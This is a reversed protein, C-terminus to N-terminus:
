CDNDINWGTLIGDFVRSNAGTAADVADELISNRDGDALYDGPDRPLTDSAAIVTFYTGSPRGVAYIEIAAQLGKIAKAYLSNPETYDTAVDTNMDVQIYALERTGMLSTQVAKEYHRATTEGVLTAM